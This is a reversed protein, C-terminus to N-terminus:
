PDIPESLGFFVTLQSLRDLNGRLRRHRDLRQGFTPLYEGFQIARETVALGAGTVARVSWAELVRMTEIKRRAIEVRAGEAARRGAPIEISADSNAQSSRWHNTEVVLYHSGLLAPGQHMEDLGKPPLVNFDVVEQRWRVAGDSNGAGVALQRHVRGIG